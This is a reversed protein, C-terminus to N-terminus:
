RKNEQLEKLSPVNPDELQELILRRRNILRIAKKAEEDSIKKAVIKATLERGAETIGKVTNQDSKLFTVTRMASLKGRAREKLVSKAATTPDVGFDRIIVAMQHKMENLEEREQRRNFGFGTTVSNKLLTSANRQEERAFRKDDRVSVSDLIANADEANLQGSLVNQYLTERIALTDDEDVLMDLISQRLGSSRDVQEENMKERPVVTFNEQSHRGLSKFMKLEDTVDADPNDIVTQFIDRFQGQEREFQKALITREQRENFSNINQKRIRENDIKRDFKAFQEGSIRPGLEKLLQKARNYDQIQGGRLYGTLVGSIRTETVSEKLADKTSQDLDRADIDLEVDTDLDVLFERITPPNTADTTSKLSANSAINKISNKTFQTREFSVASLRNEMRSLEFQQELLARASSSEVGKLVKRQRKLQTKELEDAFGRPADLFRERTTEFESASQFRDQAKGNSLTDRDEEVRRREVVSGIQLGTQIIQQGLGALARGPAGAQSVSQQTTAASPSIGSLNLRITKAM